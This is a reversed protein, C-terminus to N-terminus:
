LLVQALVVHSICKTYPQLQTIPSWKCCAGTSENLRHATGKFESM